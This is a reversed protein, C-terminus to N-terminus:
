SHYFNSGGVRLSESAQKLVGSKVLREVEVKLTDTYARPIPFARAHYPTVDPRLEINYAGMNWKGLSGDFLDEFKELVEYLQAHQDSTLNEPARSVEKLDAQEYKADLIGKLRESADLLSEPDNVHFVERTMTDRDKMPVVAHEWEMSMTAFDFKIELASLIDRGIIMDYAGLNSSVHLDWEIVRDRFFEPLIFSSRCKHTTSLDGGPTTWVTSKGPTEKLRLKTAYKKAVLSGSAGTDMLCKLMIPKAKGMRPNFRVFVIPKLDLSKSKKRPPQGRVLNVISYLEDSQTLADDICDDLSSYAVDTSFLDQKRNKNNVIM